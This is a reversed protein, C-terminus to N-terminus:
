NNEILTTLRDILSREDLNVSVNAITMAVKSFQINELIYQSIVPISSNKLIEIKIFTDQPAGVTERIYGGVYKIKGVDFDHTKNYHRIEPYKSDPYSGFLNELLIQQDQGSFVTIKAEIEM